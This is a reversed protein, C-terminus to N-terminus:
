LLDRLDKAKLKIWAFEKMDVARDWSLNDKAYFVRGDANEVWVRDAAYPAVGGGVHDNSYYYGAPFPVVRRSPWPKLFEYYYM